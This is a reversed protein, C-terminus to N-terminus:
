AHFVILPPDNLTSTQLKITTELVKNFFAGEQDILFFTMPSHQRMLKELSLSTLVSPPRLAVASHAFALHRIVSDHRAMRDLWRV